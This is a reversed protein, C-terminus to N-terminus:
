IGVGTYKYKGRNWVIVYLSLFVALWLATWGMGEMWRGVTEKGMLCRVPFSMFYGFPLRRLVAHMSGPFLSLPIMAGGLLGTTFRVIVVLSWVNDAWFALLEILSTLAFHLVTASLVATAALFLDRGSVAIGVEANFLVLFLGLAVLGQVLFVATHALHATLKFAFFSVPYIIYRNLSGEYIEQAMAGMESGRVARGLIPVLLYYLMMSGFTFEGIRQAQEHVFIAKWLFWAVVFQAALGGLFQIWFNVRYAFIRRLEQVFVEPIFIRKFM